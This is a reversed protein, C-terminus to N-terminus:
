PKYTVSVHLCDRSNGGAYFVFEGPEVIYHMDWDYYGLEQIQVQFRVEKEEGAKLPVKEFAKLQKVPRVRKAAVDQVYCQVIEEGDRDGCNKVKVRIEYADGTRQAQIDSYAYETYSLGYGFPYVPETPADLYKSTFKSKGGPRGTNIHAYYMPCQGTASPFTVTLKGTPCAEGFLIDLVANGAEIGPHWAELIADAREAAFPIALPRGNFLVVAVPRGTELLKKLLTIQAAPLSIDARSAAEGSEDKREGLVALLVDSGAAVEQVTDENGLQYSIGRSKCADVISVCDNEEAGIAWAGTMEGRKDAVAGFIGLKTGVALPLLAQEQAKSDQKKNKLLVMSKVAAERALARYEPKQMAQKEREEDTQYPHDFLGLELKLRLVDSVARDLVEEPLEKSEVLEKLCATYTDSTMDIDVGACLALKAAEKQDAAIGHSVCEAIANADSVTVGDFGWKGRLLDMLLWQNATCPVGNIDNFAPMVARAGAEICSKYAPLYEEYLRQMSLDVRNYDRGAEAAGYAAFHKVCAAMADDNALSDGQFGRVKAAGYMGNLLVDEGAGESVRGWRADKAVDAMPAFTMHIGAATAEKAAIRGTKEWLQPEWACSEGLPIPTVTRFGHIVDYGFLLPIGLRTEEVAIKQLRNVTAADGIGNYSGIKGAKLDDERFDQKATGMLRDFEEKSIRGDFMMDLLEEFSVEFAGVLSPGCQRLQGIKEELTMQSLLSKIKQEHETQM